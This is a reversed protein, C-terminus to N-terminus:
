WACFPEFRNNGPAIHNQVNTVPRLITTELRWITIVVPRLTIKNLTMAGQDRYSQAFTCLQENTRESRQAKPRQKKKLGATEFEELM